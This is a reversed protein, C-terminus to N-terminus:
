NLQFRERESVLVAGAHDPAIDIALATGARCPGDCRAADAVLADLDCGAAVDGFVYCRDETVHFGVQCDRGCQRTTMHGALSFDDELVAARAGQAVARNLNRLLDLGPACGYGSHPCNTSILLTHGPSKSEVQAM